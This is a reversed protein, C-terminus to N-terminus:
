EKSLDREIEIGDVLMGLTYSRRSRGSRDEMRLMEM